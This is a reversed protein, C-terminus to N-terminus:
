AIKFNKFMSHTSMLNEKGEALPQGVMPGVGVGGFTPQFATAKRLRSEKDNVLREREALSKERRRLDEWRKKLIRSEQNVHLERIRINVHPLEIIESITPRQSAHVNLMRTVLRRLDSSYEKSIPVFQGSEIKSALGVLTKAQFPPALACAEYLICGLSWIDSKEDYAQDSIQQPSMYYPTGVNTHAYRSHESLIRALGFDGLKVNNAGDLFINAPKLDRHIIKGEKREHCERLALSLQALIKWIQDEKMGQAKQAKLRKFYHALDGHPCNEMVIYIRKNDRDIIRDYYRVICPHTFNKLINVESVLCEKEKDSLIGYHIEKWVLERQDSLRRVKSVTGFAGRGVTRIIEYDSLQSPTSSNSSASSPSSRRPPPTM